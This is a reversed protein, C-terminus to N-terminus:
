RSDIQFYFKSNARQEFSMKLVNSDSATGSIQICYTMLLEVISNYLLM